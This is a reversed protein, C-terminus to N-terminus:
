LGQFCARTRVAFLDPKEIPVSEQTAVIGSIRALFCNSGIADEAIVSMGGVAATFRKADPESLSDLAEGQVSLIEPLEKGNSDM